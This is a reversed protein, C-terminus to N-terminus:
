VYNLEKTLNARIEALSIKNILNGDEYITKLLGTQEQELTCQQIVEYDKTVCLLGTASKKSSDTIPCKQINKAVGNIQCWTAKMAWSQSDRTNYCYTFSGVGFVINSSAFGKAELRKFIDEAREITISDGYILGVKPNLVKYGKENVTGGFVDWLLEIAGKVECVSVQETLDMYQCCSYGDVEREHTTYKYYIGDKEIVDCELDIDDRDSAITDHWYTKFFSLADDYSKVRLGCTIDAPDGSDPRIVVKSDRALIEDKLKPLINTLVNWLDWTDSVISVIGSPYLETIIRKFTDLENDIGGACMVSHETAPVSCGVLETTIDAEYYYELAQIAPITDTGRSVLLHAMGSAIAAELTPMGRMSFDHLQFPLHGEDTCTKNSYHKCLKAYEFAVSANNSMMWISCSLVTELFNTLWYFKTNTNTITLCPTGYKVVSGEKLAKIMIPLFGLNHLDIIHEVEPNEVFLCSKIIRRYEDLVHDLPKNFFYENFMDILIHKIFYQAGFWVLKHNYLSSKNGAFYKDNRPTFNSYVYETGAPYQVRHSIKYFDALLLPTPKFM